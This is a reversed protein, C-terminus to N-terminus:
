NVPMRLGNTLSSWFVEMFAEMFTDRATRAKYKFVNRDQAFITKVEVLGCQWNKSLISANGGAVDFRQMDTWINAKFSSSEGQEQEDCVRCKFWGGDSYLVVRAEAASGL